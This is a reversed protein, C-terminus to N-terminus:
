AKWPAWRSCKEKEGGSREVYNKGKSCSFIVDGNYLVRLGM